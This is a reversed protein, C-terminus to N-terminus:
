HHMSQEQLGKKPAQSRRFRFVDFRAWNEWLRTTMISWLMHSISGGKHNTFKRTSRDLWKTSFVHLAHMIRPAIAYEYPRLNRLKSSRDAEFFCQCKNRCVTCPRHQVAAFISPKLRMGTNDSKKHCIMLYNESLSDIYYQEHLWCVYMQEHLSHSKTWATLCTRHHLHHRHLAVVQPLNSQLCAKWKRKRKHSGTIASIPLWMGRCDGLSQTQASCHVWTQEHRSSALCLRYM